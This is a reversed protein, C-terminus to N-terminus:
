ANTATWSHSRSISLCMSSVHTQPPLVFVYSM